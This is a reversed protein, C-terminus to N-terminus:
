PPHLQNEGAKPQLPCCCCSGLQPPGSVHGWGEKCASPGDGDSSVRGGRCAWPWRGSAAGGVPVVTCPSREGAPSDLPSIHSGGGDGRDGLWGLGSVFAACASSFTPNLTFILWIYVCLSLSRGPGALGEGASSVSPAM